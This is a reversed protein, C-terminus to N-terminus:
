TGKPTPRDAVSVTDPLTFPVGTDDHLFPIRRLAAGAMVLYRGPWGEPWAQILALASGWDFRDPWAASLMAAAASEEHTPQRM